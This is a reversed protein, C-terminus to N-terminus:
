RSNWSRPSPRTPRRHSPHLPRDRASSPPWSAGESSSAHPCVVFWLACSSAGERSAPTPSVLTSDRLEGSGVPLSAPVIRDILRPHHSWCSTPDCYAWTFTGEPTKARRHCTIRRELPNSTLGDRSIRPWSPWKRPDSKEECHSRGARSPVALPGGAAARSFPVNRRFRGNEGCRRRPQDSFNGTGSTFKAPVELMWRGPDIM